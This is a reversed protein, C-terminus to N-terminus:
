DKLERIFQVIIHADCENNCTAPKHPAGDEILQAIRTREDAKTRKLEKNQRNIILWYTTLIYAFIRAAFGTRKKANEFGMFM